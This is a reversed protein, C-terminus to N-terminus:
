PPTSAATFSRSVIRSMHRMHTHDCNHYVSFRSAAHLHSPPRVLIDNDLYMAAHALAPPSSPHVSPLQKWLFASDLVWVDNLVSDKGNFGGYIM